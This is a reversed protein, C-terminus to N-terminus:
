QFIGYCKQLLDTRKAIKMALMMTKPSTDQYGVGLASTCNKINRGICSVIMQALMIKKYELGMPCFVKKAEYNRDPLTNGKPLMEKLLKLLESFSKDTWGNAAKM